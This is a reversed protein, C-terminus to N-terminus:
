KEGVGKIFNQLTLYFKTLPFGVVNYFCGEIRDAFLASQDQIGYAGAKDRPAGTNVYNEIEWDALPRFRVYTVEYDSVQRGSPLQLISFGTYVQHTRGSLRRLMERAQEDDGPKGLIQGDLVVITDAGIVLGRELQGAAERAKALSLAMVHRDPQLENFQSEDLHSPIVQFKLGILNLLQQRRPSSSALVIPEEALLGLPNM